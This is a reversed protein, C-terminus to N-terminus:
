CPSCRTFTGPGEHGEPVEQPVAPRKAGETNYRMANLNELFKSKKAEVLEKHQRDLKRGVTGARVREWNERTMNKFAEGRYYSRQAPYFITRHYLQTLCPSILHLEEGDYGYLCRDECTMLVLQECPCSPWKVVGIVQMNVENPLYFKGWGEAEEYDQNYITDDLDGITLRGGNPEYLDITVNRYTSVLQAAWALCSQGEDPINQLTALLKFASQLKQPDAQSM